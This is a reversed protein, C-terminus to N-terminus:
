NESAHEIHDVVWVQVPAKMPVLKLGLQQKLAQAIGPGSVDLPPAGSDAPQPRRDPVFDLLFDFTGTLGTRDVIARDLGAPGAITSAILGMSVDRGALAITDPIKGNDGM